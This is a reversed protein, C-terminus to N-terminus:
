GVVLHDIVSNVGATHRAAHEIADHATLSDVKGTLTVVGANVGVTIASADVHARRYLAAEIRAKIDSPAIPPKVTIFNHVGKVGM